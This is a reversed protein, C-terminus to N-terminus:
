PVEEEDSHTGRGQLQARAFRVAIWFGVVGMPERILNAVAAGNSGYIPTLVAQGILSTVLAAGFGWVTLAPRGVAFLYAILALGVGYFPLSFGLIAISTSSEEYDAGLIRDAFPAIGVLALSCVLGVAGATVASRRVTRELLGSAPDDAFIRAGVAPLAATVLGPFMAMANQLSSAPAYFAAEQSSALVAVLAVDARNYILNFVSNAWYPLYARYAYRTLRGDPLSPPRALLTGVQLVLNVLEGLAYACAALALNSTGAGPSLWLAVCAVTFVVRGTAQTLASARFRLAGQLVANTVMSCSLFLTGCAFPALVEISTNPGDSLLASLTVATALVPAVVWVRLMTASFLLGRNARAAAIEREVLMSSGLDTVAAFVLSVGLLSMFAGFAEVELVRALVVTSVLVSLKSTAQFIAAWFSGRLLTRRVLSDTFRETDPATM